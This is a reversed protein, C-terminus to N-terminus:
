RREPLELAYIEQRRVFAGEGGELHYVVVDRTDFHDLAGTRDVWGREAESKLAIVQEAHSSVLVNASRTAFVFQRTGRRGRLSAVIYDEIWPAHLADEPQDVLLPFDGEALAIMLVVTCKLGHALAELDRYTKPDIAFRITIVDELDVIQLDYLDALRDNGSIFEMLKEFVNAPLGSEQALSDFGDGVLHTVLRVPHVQRVINDIDTQRLYSGRAVDALRQKYTDRHEASRIDISVRKGLTAELQNAKERREASIASRAKQLRDLLGGREQEIRDIEPKRKQDIEQQLDRLRQATKRSRRLNGHLARLGRGAQDQEQLLRNIEREVEEFRTDWVGRVEGLREKLGTLNKLLRQKATRLKDNAERGIQAVREMLDRNPTGEWADKDQVLPSSLAPFEGEAAEVLDQMLERARELAAEETQWSEQEKVRPHDFLKELRAIEEKIGPLEELREQEQKLLKRKQILDAANRRLASKVGEIEQREQDIDILDDILSLRALPKRSYEIIEGQSFAKIPFYSRVPIPEDIQEVNEGIVRSVVPPQPDGMAWTREVLYHQEGKRLLVYVTNYDRLAFSMLKNCSEAIDPLVSADVQQDLAFRILEVTLSKGSGSGGILCSMDDSFRLKQGDLFGGSVWVGEIALPPEPPTEDMFRVRLLPDLLAQRLGFLSVHDMKLLCHRHGISDLHHRDAGSPWCDSGQVCTVQRPYGKIRGNLFNDRQKADVIEFARLYPCAYIKQRKVGSKAMMEWFGKSRDVHAAIAIGGESEVKEALSIMDVSSIAELNGFDKRKIGVEILFEEIDAAPKDTDFIALLHGESTTVEVGPLVYLAAGEAAERVRDCWDASNHDTVAIIEIGNTLACEVVDKPQANRWKDHIDASAPTHVHLDARWFRAGTRKSLLEALERTM